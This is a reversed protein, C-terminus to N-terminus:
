PESFKRIILGPLEEAAHYFSYPIVAITKANGRDGAFDIEVFAILSIRQDIRHCDPDHFM